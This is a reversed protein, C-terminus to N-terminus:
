KGAQLTTGFGVAGSGVAAVKHQASVSHKISSYIKNIKIFRLVFYSGFNEETNTLSLYRIFKALGIVNQM